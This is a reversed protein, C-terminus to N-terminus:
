LYPCYNHNLHGEVFSPNTSTSLPRSVKLSQRTTDSWVAPGREPVRVTFCLGVARTSFRSGLCIAQTIGMCKGIASMMLETAKLSEATSDATSDTNFTLALPALHPEMQRENAVSSFPTHSAGGSLFSPVFRASITACLACCSCCGCTDSM